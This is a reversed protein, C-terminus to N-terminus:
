PSGDRLFLHLMFHSTYSSFGHCVSPIPNSNLHAPKTNLPRPTHSKPNLPTPTSIHQLKPLVVCLICGRSLELAVVHHEM